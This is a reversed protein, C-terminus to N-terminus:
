SGGEEALGSLITALGPTAREERTGDGLQGNTNSGWCAVDGEDLLACAHMPGVTVDRADDILPLQRPEGYVTAGEDGRASELSQRYCHVTGSETVACIEWPGVGIRRVGDLAPLRAQPEGLRTTGGARAVGHAGWCTIEGGEGLACTQSAFAHTAIQSVGSLDPVRAPRARVRDSGDGMQNERNDGWCTVGGDEHLACTHTVGAAVQVVGEVGSVWWRRSGFPSQSQLWGDSGLCRVHGAAGFVACEHSEGVAGHRTQPVHRSGPRREYYSDGHWCAFNGEAAWSCGRRRGIAIGVRDTMGEIFILAEPTDGLRFAARNDGFCAVRGDALVACTNYYGASIAVPRLAEPLGLTGLTTPDGDVDATGDAAAEAELVEPRVRVEECAAGVLCLVFVSLTSVGARM